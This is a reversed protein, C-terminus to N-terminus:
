FNNVFRKFGQKLIPVNFNILFGLRKDALKLYSIIQAEFVPLMTEVSKLEIIIENEVLIDIKYDKSLEYGKYVLPIALQNVAKINRLEFEKLLCQEYVSELLGPGMEKHITIASDLIKVSLKNLEENNM